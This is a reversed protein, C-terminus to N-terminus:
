GIRGKNRGAKGRGPKPPRRHSRKTAEEAEGFRPLPQPPDERQAKSAM